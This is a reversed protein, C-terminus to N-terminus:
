MTILHFVAGNMHIHLYHTEVVIDVFNLMIKKTIDDETLEM